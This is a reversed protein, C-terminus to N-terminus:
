RDTHGLARAPDLRDRVRRKLLKAEMFGDVARDMLPAGDLAVVFVGAGAPRLAVEELDDAFTSLLEQAYWAARALWKCQPCYDITIRSMTIFLLM